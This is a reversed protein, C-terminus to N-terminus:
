GGCWATPISGLRKPRNTAMPPPVATSRCPFSSFPSSSPIPKRWPSEPRDCLLFLTNIPLKTNANFSKQIAFPPAKFCPKSCKGCIGTPPWFDSKCKPSSPRPPRDSVFYQALKYSVFKATAPHKALIDLAAEGQAVGSKGLPKGLFQQISNDHRNSNFYFGSPDPKAYPALTWGTLIKALSLVDAQTYGGDVGLTHLEMLERAYNENLGQKSSQWNDLYFLMAPHRASAGLLSRFKGLVQSRIADREYSAIWLKTLGKGSHVNFHNFWFDTLVEELQRPSAIARALKAQSASKVNTRGNEQLAKNKAERGEAQVPAFYRYAWDGASGGLDGFDALQAELTEPLPITEPNLQAEIYRDVGMQQVQALEGPTAGFSLRNVVHLVLPDIPSAQSWAPKSAIAIVGLGLAIQGLFSRRKM